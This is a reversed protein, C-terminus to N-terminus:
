RTYIDWNSCNSGLRYKGDEKEVSVYYTDDLYFRKINTNMFIIPIIFIFSKGSNNTVIGIETTSDILKTRNATESAVFTWPIVGGGGSNKIADVLTPEDLENTNDIKNYIDIVGM